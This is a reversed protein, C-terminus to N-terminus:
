KYKILEFLGGENGRSWKGKEFTYDKLYKTKIVVKKGKTWGTLELVNDKNFTGKVGFQYERDPLKLYGEVSGKNDNMFFLKGSLPKTSILRYKFQYTGSIDPLAEKSVRKLMFSGNSFAVKCSGKMLSGDQSLEGRLTMAKGGDVINVIIKGWKNISWKKFVHHCVKDRSNKYETQGKLRGDEWKLTIPYSEVYGSFMTVFLWDGKLKSFDANKDNGQVPIILAFIMLILTALKM